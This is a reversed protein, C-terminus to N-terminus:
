LGIIKEVEDISIGAANAIVEISVGQKYFSLVMSTREEQRGKQLGEQRGEQLWENKLLQLTMFDKRWEQNSRAAMLAADLEQVLLSGGNEPKESTDLYKMLEKFEESVNGEKGKTNFFIKSTEDGLKVEPYEKCINEFTYVYADKDFPDFTCIFIVLSNKLKAYDEGKSILNLDMQGQYYRSRKPLNRNRTTQMECDYITTGDDVYIDFRVSRADSKLDINKQPELYEIHHISIRLIEELFLKCIREDQMIRGFMFDNSIGLSEYSEMM